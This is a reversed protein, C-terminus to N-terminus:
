DFAILPASKPPPGDTFPTGDTLAPTGVTDTLDLLQDFTVQDGSGHDVAV